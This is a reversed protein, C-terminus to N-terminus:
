TLGQRYAEADLLGALDPVGAPRIRFLWCAYPDKNVKAPEDVLAQNAAVVEGSVPAYVDSAAKVSEAVACETGAKVQQGPAPLEIFVLEGLSSQAFDSLGVSVTGDAELRVWEHTTTYRLAEPLNM